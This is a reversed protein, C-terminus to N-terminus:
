ILLMRSLQHLQGPFVNLRRNSQISGKCFDLLRERVDNNKIRSISNCLNAVILGQMITSFFAGLIFILVIVTNGINSTNLLMFIDSWSDFSQLEYMYIFTTFINRFNNEGRIQDKLVWGKAKLEDSYNSLCKQDPACINEQGPIGCLMLQSDDIKWLGDRTLFRCRTTL